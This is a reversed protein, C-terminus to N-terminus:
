VNPWSVLSFNSKIFQIKRRTEASEDKNKVKELDKALDEKEQRAKELYIDLKSMPPNVSRGPIPQPENIQMRISKGKGKNILKMTPEVHDVQTPKYPYIQSIIPEQRQSVINEKELVKSRLSDIDRFIDAHFISTWEELKNNKKNLSVMRRLFNDREIIAKM